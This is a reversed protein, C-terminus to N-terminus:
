KIERRARRRRRQNCNGFHFAANGNHEAGAALPRHVGYILPENRRAASVILESECVVVVANNQGNVAALSRHDIKASRSRSSLVQRDTLPM